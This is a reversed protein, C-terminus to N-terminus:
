VNLESGAEIDRSISLIEVKGVGEFKLRLHDCRPTSFPLLVSGTKEINKSFVEIWKENSNSQVFVKLRAGKSGIARILISSYYKNQPLSLGWLGTEFCWKFDEELNFGKLEGTFNGFKNVSDILGIKRNGDYQAIFYLNLNNCAFERIDIVDERHWLNYREDYVFLTREGKVDTMCIYYKNLCGCGVANTYYNNGLHASIDTPLGGEYVCIGNPSKYYLTENLICLSKHSGKQVGRIYSTTITYPPNSGYIKHVCNEKFFLIYGRYSIAGTFEGDTGVTAAYSDQSIGMYSYFNCPDGLKSAYIENRQSNCGWLRNGSECVFDMDPITRKISFEESINISQSLMGTVVIYDNGKDYIIYSGELGAKELGSIFVGDYQNFNEGIGTSNIRIYNDALEVFMQTDASYQKLVNPVVSTDVWLDGHFPNNPSTSSVTYKEYLDGDSRCLSCFANTGTFEAELSGYDSLDDTNVYVKDPLIILKAGMSVFIREKQIEPFSIGSVATGGYYLVGNNIYTLKTKSFLGQLNEGNVNFFCRKNRPTLVPYRDSSMNEEYYFANEDIVLNNHYGEFSSILQRNKVTYDLPPKFMAM